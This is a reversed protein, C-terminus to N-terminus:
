NSQLNDLLSGCIDTRGGCCDLTLFQLLAALKKFDARYIIQRGDRKSYVLGANHLVLLQASATPLKTKSQKALVGAALGDPGAKILLRLLSLRGEHAVASLQSVAKATSISKFNSKM